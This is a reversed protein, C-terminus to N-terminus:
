RVCFYSGIPNFESLFFDGNYFASASGGDLNISNIIRRGTVAEFDELFQPMQSLLPGSLNNDPDYFAAFLLSGDELVSLTIRRAAKDNKIKLPKPQGNEFLLPGSQIAIKLAGLPLQGTVGAKNEQSVYFYGNFLPNFYANSIKEAGAIFLGLPKGEKSYFSGNALFKCKQASIIQSATLKDKLNLGLKLDAVNKLEYYYANFTKGLYEVEVPNIAKGVNEYASPTSVPSLLPNLTGTPKNLLPSVLNSLSLLLSSIFLFVKEAM